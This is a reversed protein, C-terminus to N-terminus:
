GSKTDGIAGGASAPGGGREPLGAVMPPCWGHGAKLQEEAEHPEQSRSLGRSGDDPSGSSTM